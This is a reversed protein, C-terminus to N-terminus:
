CLGGHLSSCRLRDADVPFVQLEQSGALAGDLSVEFLYHGASWSDTPEFRVVPTESGGASLQLKRTAVTSGDALSIMAVSVEAGRSEGQTHMAIEVTDTPYVPSFISGGSGGSARAVIQILRLKATSRAAPAAVQSGASVGKCAVLILSAVLMVPIHWKRFDM